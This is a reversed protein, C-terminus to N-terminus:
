ALQKDPSSDYQHICNVAATSNMLVISSRLYSLCCMYPCVTLLLLTYLFTCCSCFSFFLSEKYLITCFQPMKFCVKVLWILKVSKGRRKQNRKEGRYISASYFPGCNEPIKSDWFMCFIRWAKKVVGRGSNKSM